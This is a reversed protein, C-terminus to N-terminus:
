IGGSATETCGYLEPEVAASEILDVIVLCNQNM